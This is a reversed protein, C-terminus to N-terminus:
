LNSSKTVLTSSFFCLQAWILHIIHSKAHNEQLPPPPTSIFMPAERSQSCDYQCKGKGPLNLKRNAYLRLKVEMNWYPGSSNSSNKSNSRSSSFIGSVPKDLRLFFYQKSLHLASTHQAPDIISLFLKMEMLLRFPQSATLYKYPKEQSTWQLMRQEIEEPQIMRLDLVSPTFQHDLAARIATSEVAIDLLEKWLM